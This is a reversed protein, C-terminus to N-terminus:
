APLETATGTTPNVAFAPPEDRPPLSFFRVWVHKSTYRGRLSIEPGDLDGSHKAPSAWVLEDVACFMGIIRGVDLRFGSVFMAGDNRDTGRVENPTPYVVVQWAESPNQPDDPEWYRYGLPGIFGLPTVCETLDEVLAKIWAPTEVTHEVIM